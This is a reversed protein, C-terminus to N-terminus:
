RRPELNLDLCFREAPRFGQHHFFTILRPDSWSVETQLNPVGLGALDTRLQDLLAAGVGRGRFDPHVAITDLVAAPEILGFEGYYVRSLLFGAFIGDLEAVLSLAIGAETLNQKMKLRYYETRRRGTVKADLAIVAELDDVRLKRVVATGPERTELAM